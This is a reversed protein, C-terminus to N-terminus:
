QTESGLKIPEGAGKLEVKLTDGPMIDMTEDMEFERKIHDAGRRVVKFLLAQGEKDVQKAKLSPALAQADYLLQKLTLLKGRQRDLQAQNERMLETVERTRQNRVRTIDIETRSIDQKVKMLSTELRLRGSIMEASTRELILQRSQPTLKKRILRKVIVLQKKLLGIQRNQSKIQQHLYDIEGHLSKQLKTLAHIQTNFSQRRAAFIQNEQKMLMSIVKRKGLARLQRPYIVKDQGKLEALLRAKRAMLSNIELQMVQIEGRRTILDRGQVSSAGKKERQLGGALSMAQLVTLGPRYPYAGPKDVMGVIYFPRYEAIEVSIEPPVALGLKSRLRLAIARGLQSPTLGVAKVLGVLPVALRGSASITYDGKLAKWEFVDARSERWQFAKLSVKDQVGLRYEQVEDFATKGHKRDFHVAWAPSMSGALILLGVVGTKLM